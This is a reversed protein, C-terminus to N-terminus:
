GACGWGWTVLQSEPSMGPAEQAFGKLANLEQRTPKPHPEGQLSGMWREEGMLLTRNTKLSERRTRRAAKRQSREWNCGNIDTPNRQHFRSLFKAGQRKIGGRRERKEKAWGLGLRQRAQGPSRSGSPHSSRRQLEQQKACSRQKMDLRPEFCIQEAKQKRGRCETCLM